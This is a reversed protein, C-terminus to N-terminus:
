LSTGKKVSDALSGGMEVVNGYEIFMLALTKFVVVQITTLIYTVYVYDSNPWVSM